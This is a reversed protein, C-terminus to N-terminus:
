PRASELKKETERHWELAVMNATFVAQRFKGELLGKMIEGASYDALDAFTMDKLEKNM